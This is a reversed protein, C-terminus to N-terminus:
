VCTVVCMPYMSDPTMDELHDDGKYISPIREKILYIIADDKLCNEIKYSQTM